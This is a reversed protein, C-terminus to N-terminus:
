VGTKPGPGHRLTASNVEGLITKAEETIDIGVPCWVICRGCGVCGFTGFQDMWTSLKHTLWQRYRSKGSARVRGGHVYTFAQTFCSDWKRIREASDDTLTNTEEIRYCFCTPCVMTCNGCTLCREEVQEWRPHEFHEYFLSRTMSPDLTRGMRASATKLAQRVALKEDETAEKCPLDALIGSGKPTGAEAVFYHRENDEMETLAIDFGTVARPGTNMYACFCTEGPRTCNVAVIFAKQRRSHYVPDPNDAADLVRDLVAIAGVDCPRVGILALKPPRERERIVQWEQGNKEARWLRIDPPHLFPKWSQPGVTHAFMAPTGAHELRYIGPGKADRWGSPLDSVSALEGVVIAGNSVRPGMTRYGRCKLADLLSQLDGADIICKKDPILPQRKM